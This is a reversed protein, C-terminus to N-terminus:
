KKKWKDEGEEDEDEEFKKIGEEFSTRLDQFDDESDSEGGNMQFRQMQEASSQLADVFNEAAVMTTQTVKEIKNIKLGIIQIIRHIMSIEQSMKYFLVVAAFIGFIVFGTLLGIVFTNM